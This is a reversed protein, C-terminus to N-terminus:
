GVYGRNRLHCIDRLFGSGVGDGEDIRKYGHGDVGLGAAWSNRIYGSAEGTGRDLWDRQAHDIVGSVGHFNGHDPDTSDVSGLIDHLKHQCPRTSDLHSSRTVEVGYRCLCQNLFKRIVATFTADFAKAVEDAPHQCISSDCKPM